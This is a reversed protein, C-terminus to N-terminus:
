SRALNVPAKLRSIMTCTFIYLNLFGFTILNYLILFFIESAGKLANDAFGCVGQAGGGAFSGITEHEGGGFAVHVPVAGGAVHGHIGAGGNVDDM